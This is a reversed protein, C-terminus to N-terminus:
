DAIAHCLLGIVVFACGVRGGWRWAVMFLPILYFILYDFDTGTVYDGVAACATLVSVIAIVLGDPLRALNSIINM